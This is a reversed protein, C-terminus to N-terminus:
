YALYVASLSVAIEKFASKLQDVNLTDYFHKLDTGCDQLTKRAIAQESPSLQDLAFGVTYIEIGKAKMSTCM